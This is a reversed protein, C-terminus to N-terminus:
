SSTPRGATGTGSTAATWASSSAGKLSRCDPGSRRAATSSAPNSRGSNARPASPWGCSTSACPPPTRARPSRCRTPLCAPRPPTPCWRRGAHKWICGSRPSMAPSLAACRRCQPRGQGPVHLPSAKSRRTACRWVADPVPRPLQRQQRAPQRMLRLLSPAWGVGWSAGARGTAPRRRAADQRQRAVPRRGRGTGDGERVRCGRRCQRCHRRRRHDPAPHQRAHVAESAASFPRAKWLLRLPFGLRTRCPGRRGVRACKADWVGGTQM